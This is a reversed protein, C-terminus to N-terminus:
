KYAWIQYIFKRHVLGECRQINEFFSYLNNTDFNSVFQRRNFQVDVCLPKNTYTDKSFIMYCLSSKKKSNYEIM